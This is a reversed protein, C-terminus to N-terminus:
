GIASLGHFAMNVLRVDIYVIARFIIFGHVDFVQGDYFIGKDSHLNGGELAKFVAEFKHDTQVQKLEIEDLRYFLTAHSMMTKRMEVFANMIEISVQVAMESRLVASLM